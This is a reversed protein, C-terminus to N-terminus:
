KTLLRRREADILAPLDPRVLAQRAAAVQAEQKGRGSGSALEQGKWIVVAEFQPLHDPGDSSTIRYTPTEGWPSVQLMEQLQGKPNQEDPAVLLSALEDRWLREILARSAEIGGDM